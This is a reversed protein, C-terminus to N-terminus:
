PSLTSLMIQFIGNGAPVTLHIPLPGLGLYKKSQWYSSNHRSRKGPRAFSSIEYHEFGAAELVEIATLFQGAQVEPKIDESTKSRIM